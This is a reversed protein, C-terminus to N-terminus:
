PCTPITFSEPRIGPPVLLRSTGDAGKVWENMECSAWKTKEAEYEAMHMKMYADFDVDFVTDFASAERPPAQPALDHSHSTSRRSAKQKLHHRPGRQPAHIETMLTEGDFDDQSTLSSEHYLHKPAQALSVDVHAHAPQYESTLHQAYGPDVQTQVPRTLTRGLHMYAFSAGTSPRSQTKEM